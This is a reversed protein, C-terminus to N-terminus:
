NRFVEQVYISAEPQLPGHVGFIKIGYDNQLKKVGDVTVFRHVVAEMGINTGFEKNMTALNRCTSKMSSFGFAKQSVALEIPGIEESVM